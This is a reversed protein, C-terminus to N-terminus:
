SVYEACRSSHITVTLKKEGRERLECYLHLASLLPVNPLAAFQPRLALYLKITTM